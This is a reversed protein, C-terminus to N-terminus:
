KKIGNRRLLADITPEQGRFRKYLTMPHETGGRSLINDRFSDAVKTSFIGDAKFVSFADADLVEAWKYGYYGAAYGGSFIHSFQTSMCTGEVTPLVQASKWAESEFAKVDGNYPKELTYWAMDLLGFSLQRLCLYGANFNSTEKIRQILESPIVEGTKYHRAFTKLFEEEIAFNEMLQSPLEVFDRYVNTGSLSEYSCRTLMGHLGHGFEHLFTTVEDFTLLAPKDDTPKTFNMVLTVHPRCDEGTKSDIWQGKYETMWAGARKGARPHFDVYLVALYSGDKDFVEYADVDKHYVPIDANKKFTVGYLRTALGFVGKKVNELEFYPRLMEENLSYKAEQLQNSYYSWDWPMVVFSKGESKQALKTVEAVEAKAAPTYAELLQNLLRYVGESNEAMREKLTYEAFNKYGLLQAIEMRTNAIEKVVECCDNKDGNVTKTNYAMYLEHRLDRNSSYKMFPVYSPAQLTIVWGEEGREKAAAKAAAVASEPLGALQAEDKLVLAYENTANLNKESFQIKLLNLKKTLERYKERADGTLDAGRNVFSRYYDETLKKQEMNLNASNEYVAKIRAFLKENLSVNNQHDSLMPAMKKSLERLEDNTEASQLNGFVTGVRDLLAGANEIALITNEFTPAETSNAIADVEAEHRKVGEVLAEEIYATTIRDFPMTEHPTNFKEFFPNQANTTVTMFSILLAAITRLRMM